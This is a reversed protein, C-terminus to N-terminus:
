EGAADHLQVAADDVDNVAAAADYLQANGAADDADNVAAALSIASKGHQIHGYINQIAAHNSFNHSDNIHLGSFREKENRRQMQQSQAKFELKNSDKVAAVQLSTVAKMQSMKSDQDQKVSNELYKDLKNRTTHLEAQLSVAQNKESTM